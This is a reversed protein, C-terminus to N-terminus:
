WSAHSCGEAEMAERGERSKEKRGGGFLVCCWNKSTLQTTFFFFLTAKRKIMDPASIVSFLFTSVYADPLKPSARPDV